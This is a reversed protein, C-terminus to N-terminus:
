NIRYSLGTGVFYFRKRTVNTIQTNISSGGYLDLQLNNNILYYFGLDFNTYHFNFDYNIFYNGYNEIFFGLDKNFSYQINFVYNITTSNIFLGDFNLDTTNGLNINLSFDENIKKLYILTISLPFIYNQNIVNDENLNIITQIAFSNDKDNNTFNHRIGLNFNLNQLNTNIVTDINKDELYRYKSEINTKFLNLGINLETNESLGYRINQNTFYNQSSIELPYTFGSIFSDYKYNFKYINYYFGSQLQLGGTKLTLPTNAQGPRDSNISSNEESCLFNNNIVFLLLYFTVNKLNM